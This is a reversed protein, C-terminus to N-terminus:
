REEHPDPPISGAEFDEEEDGPVPCDIRARAAPTFGFEASIRRLEQFFERCHKVAPHSRLAGNPGEIVLGENAVMERARLYLAFADCYAALTQQDLETLLRRSALLPAVRHWEELAVGELWPPPGPVPGGGVAALRPFGAKQGRM